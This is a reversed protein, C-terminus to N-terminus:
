IRRSLKDVMYEIDALALEGAGAVGLGFYSAKVGRGFKQRYNHADTGTVTAFTYAPAPLKEGAYLTVTAAPGLRGRFYASNVNKKGTHEFDTLGTKFAWPIPTPAGPTAPAYDTTGELLMLGAASVGYYSNRYRVIRLFPYNTYRTLEDSAKPDNHKLNLAYAEYTVAVTATGIFTLKGMPAIAYLVNPGSLKQMPAILDFSGHSPQSGSAELQFLPCTLVIQGIGGATGTAQVTGMPSTISIVAGGYGVLKQMPATLNIQGVGSVTGSIQVTPMPATLVIQGSVTFTGSALVTPKPATLSITAGGYAEVTQMPATLALANEGTADHGTLTITAMPARLSVASGFTASVTPMPATLNLTAGGYVALSQLPATLNLTAGGLITVNGIPATLLVTAGGYIAVSQMPATLMITTPPATDPFAETPLAFTATYRAVGKTIRMDDQYGAYWADAAGGGAPLRGIMLATGNDTPTGTQTATTVLVGGIFLRLTTGQRTFAVHYMTNIAIAAAASDVSQSYSAGTSTGIQAHLVGATTVALSYSPFGVGFNQDKQLITRQTALSTVYIWGEITFDGTALNLAANHPFTVADTSGNFVGSSGGWQSIATSITPTGVLTRVFANQSNDTFANSGNAGDNHLLLSVNGYFSDTTPM